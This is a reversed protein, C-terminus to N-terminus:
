TRTSLRTPLLYIHALMVASFVFIVGIILRGLTVGGCTSTGMPAPLVACLRDLPIVLVLFAALSAIGASLIATRWADRSTVRDEKVPKDDKTSKDATNSETGSNNEKKKTAKVPVDDEMQKISQRLAVSQDMGQREGRKASDQYIARSDSDPAVVQENQGDLYDQSYLPESIADPTYRSNYYEYMEQSNRDDDDTNRSVLIMDGPMQEGGYEADEVLMERKSELPGTQPQQQLMIPLQHLPTSKQM